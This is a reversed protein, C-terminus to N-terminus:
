DSKYMLQNALPLLIQGDNFSSTCQVDIQQCSGVRKIRYVSAIDAKFHKTQGLIVSFPYLFLLNNGMFMCAGTDNGAQPRANVSNGKLWDVSELATLQRFQSSLYFIHFARKCPFPCSDNGCKTWIVGDDMYINGIL